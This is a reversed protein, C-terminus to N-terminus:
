RKSLREKAMNLIKTKDIVSLRNIILINELEEFNEIHFKDMIEEFVYLRNLVEKEPIYSESQFPSREWGRDRIKPKIIPTNRERDLETLRKM